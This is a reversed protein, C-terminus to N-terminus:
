PHPLPQFSYHPVPQQYQEILWPQVAQSSPPIELEMAMVPSDEVQSCVVQSCAVQWDIRQSVQDIAAVLRQDNM